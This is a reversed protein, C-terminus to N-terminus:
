HHRICSHTQIPDTVFLAYYTIPNRDPHAIANMTWESSEENNM